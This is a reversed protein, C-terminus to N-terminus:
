RRDACVPGGAGLAGEGHAGCDGTRTETEPDADQRRRSRRLGTLPEVAAHTDGPAPPIQVRARRSPALLVLVAEVDVAPVVMLGSAHDRDGDAADPM